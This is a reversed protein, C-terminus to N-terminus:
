VLISNKHGLLIQQPEYFLQRQMPKVTTRQKM